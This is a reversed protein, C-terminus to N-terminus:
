GRSRDRSKPLYRNFASTKRELGPYSFLDEIFMFHKKRFTISYIDKHKGSMQVNPEYGYKDFVWDLLGEAFDKSGISFNCGYGIHGDGDFYGRLFPLPNELWRPWPLTRSKQRKFGYKDSLFEVLRVNSITLGSQESRRYNGGYRTYIRQDKNDLVDLIRHLLEVDDSKLWIRLSREGTDIYGDAALLGIVYQGSPDDQDMLRTLDWRSKFKFPEIGARHYWYRITDVPREILRSIDPLTLKNEKWDLLTNIDM